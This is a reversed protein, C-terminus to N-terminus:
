GSVTYYYADGLAATVTFSTFNNYNGTIGANPPVTVPISNITFVLDSAGTNFMTIQSSTVGTNITQAAGNGTGKGSVQVLASIIKVPSALDSETVM